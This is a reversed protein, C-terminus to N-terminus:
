ADKKQNSTAAQCFAELFTDVNKVFDGFTHIAGSKNGSVKEILPSKDRAFVNDWLYHMLKNTIEEKEIKGNQAKIFWLGILKDEIRRISNAHSKIFDNLSKRFTNWECEQDGVKATIQAHLPHSAKDEPKEYEDSDADVDVYEFHWRRKFASDMYFVSEDSTNMTAILNLNSPITITSQPMAEEADLEKLAQELGEMFLKQVHIPYESEGKEDRDLLQFIDGFITATNGRNIEEILLYINQCPDALAKALAQIFPGNHIQYEVRKAGDSDTVTIPVLKATFDGYTYDPHFVTRIINPDDKKPFSDRCDHTKIKSRISHSKGTGPSGFIITQIPNNLFFMKEAHDFFRMIFPDDEIKFKDEKNKPTVKEELHRLLKNDQDINKYNTKKLTNLNILLAQLGEKWPHHIIITYCYGIKKLKEIDVSEEGNFSSIINKNKIVANSTYYSGLGSNGSNIDLYILDKTNKYLLHNKLILDAGARNKGTYNLYKFVKM